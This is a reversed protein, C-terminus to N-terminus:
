EYTYVHMCVNMYVTCIYVHMCVHTFESIEFLHIATYVLIPPQICLMHIYTHIYTPLYSCRSGKKEAAATQDDTMDSQVGGLDNIATLTLFGVCNSYQFTLVYMFKLVYMCVYMCVNMCLCMCMFIHSCVLLSKDFCFM